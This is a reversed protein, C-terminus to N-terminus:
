EGEAVSPALVLRVAMSGKGTPREGSFDMARLASGTGGYGAFLGRGASLQFGLQTEGATGAASVVRAFLAAAQGNAFRCMAEEGGLVSGAGWAAGLCSLTFTPLSRDNPFAHGKIEYTAFWFGDRDEIRNRLAYDFEGTMRVVAPEAATANGIGLALLIMAAGRRM